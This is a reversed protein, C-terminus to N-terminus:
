DNAGKKEVRTVASAEGVFGSLWHGDKEFGGEISFLAEEKTDFPVTQLALCVLVDENLAPESDAIRQRPIPPGVHNGAGDELFVVETVLFYKEFKAIYWKEGSRIVCLEGRALGEAEGLDTALLAHM